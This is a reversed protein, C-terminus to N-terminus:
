SGAIGKEIWFFSVREGIHALELGLGQYFAVSRKMNKVPLHAEYLGKIM